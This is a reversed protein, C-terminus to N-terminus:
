KSYDFFGHGTKMGLQGARVMKVLLPAPRYKPDKFESYLVDMIALCVDLGILDALKLPGMPHNCGLLMGKDIDEYSSIGEEAVFCAENIFPILLRNVVFGAKDKVEIPTKGLTEALAWASDRTEKSTKYGMVVEVLKMAKVPNFFHMGIVQEPRNTCDALLTISISSTNSALITEPKCIADLKKFHEEKLAVDEAIAEIVLDFDKADDLTNTGNLHSLAEAKAEETMRGKTVSKALIKEMRSKITDVPKSTKVMVDFGKTCCAYAIGFGMTGSGIVFIKKIEM